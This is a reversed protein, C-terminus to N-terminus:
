RHIHVRDNLMAYTQSYVLLIFFVNFELSTTWSMALMLQRRVCICVECRTLRLM